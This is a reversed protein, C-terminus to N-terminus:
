YIFMYIYIKLWELIENFIKEIFFIMFIIYLWIMNYWEISNVLKEVKINLNDLVIYYNFRLFFICWWYRLVGWFEFIGSWIELNFIRLLIFVERISYMIYLINRIVFFSSYFVFCKDRRKM